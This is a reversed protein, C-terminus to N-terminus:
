PISVNALLSVVDHTSLLEDNDDVSNYCKIEGTILNLIFYDCGPLTIGRRPIFDFFQLSDCDGNFDTATGIDRGLLKAPQPKLESSM